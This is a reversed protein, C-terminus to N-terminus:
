QASRIGIELIATDNISSVNSLDSTKIEIDKGTGETTDSVLPANITPYHQYILLGDADEVDYSTTKGKESVSWNINNNGDSFYESPKLYVVVNDKSVIKWKINVTASANNNAYDAILEIEDTTSIETTRDEKYLTFDYYEGPDPIWSVQLTAGQSSDIAILVAPFLSVLLLVLFKKM